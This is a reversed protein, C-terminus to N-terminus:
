HIGRLKSLIETTEALRKALIHILKKAIEPYKIIIDDMEKPVHMVYSSTKARVTCTRPERLINGLEGFIINEETINAIIEEKKLIDLEGSQLIYFGDPEDGEKIIIEGPHFHRTMEM